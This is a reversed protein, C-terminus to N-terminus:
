GGPQAPGLSYFPTFDLVVVYPTGETQAPKTAAAKKVPAPKGAAPKSAPTTCGSLLATCCAIVLYTRM